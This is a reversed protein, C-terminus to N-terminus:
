QRGSTEIVEDVFDMLVPDLKLQMAHQTSQNIVVRYDQPSVTPLSSPSAGALIREALQAAQRGIDTHDPAVCMLAGARVLSESYALVPIRARLTETLIVHFGVPTVVERDPLLWIADVEGRIQALGRRVRQKSTIRAIRLEYGARDAADLAAQLQHEGDESVIVGLREVEPLMLRLQALVLDASVNMDVGTVQGTIGYRGPDFVMAYVMPTYPLKHSVLWAARAGLAFILAPPDKRLQAAIRYARGRDGQIDFIDVPVDLSQVFADIPADYEVLDSSRIIAIPAAHVAALVLLLTLM